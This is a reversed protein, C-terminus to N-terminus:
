RYHKEAIAALDDDLTRKVPTPVGSRVNVGSAARASAVKQQTQRTREEDAKRRQDAQILEFVKPHARCAQEYAEKLMQPMTKSGDDDMSALISAMLPKVTEYHPHAQRDSAFAKVADQVAHTAQAEKARQEATLHHTLHQVTRALDDVRPDAPVRAAGLAEAANPGLLPSIDIGYESVIDALVALKTGNDPATRLTNEFRLVDNILVAPHKGVHQGVQTLYENFPAVADIIPKNHRFAAVENGVRSLVQRVETERKGLYDKADPPLSAWLAAKDKPWSQPLDAPPETPLDTPQQPDTPQGDDTGEAPPDGALTNAQEGDPPTEGEVKPKTSLFRGREDRPTDAPDKHADDWVAALQDDLSPAPDSPTETKPAESPSAGGDSGAQADPTGAAPASAGADVTSSVGPSGGDEPAYLIPQFLGTLSRLM